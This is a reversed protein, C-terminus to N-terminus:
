GIKPLRHELEVFAPGISLQGLKGVKPGNKTVVSHTPPGPTDM